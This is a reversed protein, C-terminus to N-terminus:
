SINNIDQVNKLLYFPINEVSIKRKGTDLCYMYERAAKLTTIRKFRGFTSHTKRKGKIIRKSLFM